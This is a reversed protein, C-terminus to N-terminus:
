FTSEYRCVACDALALLDPCAHIVCWLINPVLLHGHAKVAKECGKRLIRFAYTEVVAALAESFTKGVRLKHPEFDETVLWPLTGEDIDRRLRKLSVVTFNRMTSARIRAAGKKICKTYTDQVPGYSALAAQLHSAQLTKTTGLHLVARRILEKCTAEVCTNLFEPLTDQLRVVAKSPLDKKGIVRVM